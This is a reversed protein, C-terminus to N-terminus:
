TARRRFSRTFCHPPRFLLLPSIRISIPYRIPDRSRSPASLAARPYSFLKQANSVSPRLPLLLFSSFVSRLILLFLPSFLSAFPLTTPSPHLTRQGVPRHDRKRNRCLTFHITLFPEASPLSPPFTYRESDGMTSGSRDRRPHGIQGVGGSGFRYFQKRWV